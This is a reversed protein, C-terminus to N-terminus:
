KKAGARHAFPNVIDRLFVAAATNHVAAAKKNPPLIHLGFFIQHQGFRLHLQDFHDASQIVTLYPNRAFVVTRDPYFLNASANLKGDLLLYVTMKLVSPLVSTRLILFM